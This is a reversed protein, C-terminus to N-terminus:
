KPMQMDVVDFAVQRTVHKLCCLEDTEAAAVIRHLEDAFVGSDTQDLSALLDLLDGAIDADSGARRLRLPGCSRRSRAGPRPRGVAIEEPTLWVLTANAQTVSRAAELLTGMTAFGSESVTNFAGGVEQQGCSVAWEALDRADVYQLRRSAPGPALVAGGRAVRRLWWPLRGVAEHPGLILGARAFLANPFVDLIGIEAGRKARAYDDSARSLPDADVVPHSEDAGIALPFSYVSRSSIYVYHRATTALLQAATTAHIPAGSWTDFVM